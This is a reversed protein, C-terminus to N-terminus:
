KTPFKPACVAWTLIHRDVSGVNDVYAIWGRGTLTQHPAWPQSANVHQENFGGNDSVGGGVAFTKKPCQVKQATQTGPPNDKFSSIVYKYGGSSFTSLPPIPARTSIAIATGSAGLTAVAALALLAHWLKLPKNLMRHEKGYVM